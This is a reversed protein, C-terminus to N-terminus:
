SLQSLTSNAHAKKLAAGPAPPHSLSALFAASDRASLDLLQQDRIVKRSDHLALHLVYDSINKHGSITAAKNIFEKQSKTLRLELRQSKTEAALAALYPMAPEEASSPSDAPTAYPINKKKKPQKSMAREKKCVVIYSKKGYM